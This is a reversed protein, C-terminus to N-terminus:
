LRIGGRATRYRNIRKSSRKSRKLGKKFSRKVRLMRKRRRLKKM